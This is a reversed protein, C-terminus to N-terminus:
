GNQKREYKLNRFIEDFSWPSLDDRTDIGVDMRNQRLNVTEHSTGGHLHGHLMISNHEMKNWSEIPFHMMTVFVKDIWEEHYDKIWEFRDRIPREDNKNFREDHNGKILCISGNLRHLINLTKTDTGFSVDGLIYTTDEYSVKDNWAKIIGEHMEDLDNFKRNPQFKLINKHYLHLDSTCFKAM